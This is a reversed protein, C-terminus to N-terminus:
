KIGVEETVVPDLSKLLEAAAWVVDADVEKANEEIGNQWIEVLVPVAAKADPGFKTLAEIVEQRCLVLSQDQLADVLAQIVEPAPVGIEGLARIVAPRTILREDPLTKLSKVLAPVASAAEAGFQSLATAAGAYHDEELVKVLASIVEDNAIGVTGLARCAYVRVLFDSDSTARILVPLASEAQLGFDGIVQVAHYRVQPDQHEYLDVLIPLVDKIRSPDIDAIVDAALWRLNPDTDDLIEALAPAATEAEKGMYRLALLCGSKRHGPSNGAIVRVLEPIADQGIAALALAAGGPYIASSNKGTPEFLEILKPIALHEANRQKVSDVARDILPSRGNELAGLEGRAVELLRRVPERQWLVYGAVVLAVMLTPIGAIAFIKGPSFRKM